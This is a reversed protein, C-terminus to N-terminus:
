FRLGTGLLLRKEASSTFTVSFGTAQDLIGFWLGGGGVTHWGGPSAGDVYVRGADVFGLVGIDLPIVYRVSAVPIRLESTGYFSADGAYRQADMGRVTSRGGIFALEHFPASGWVKRGGGRFALVPHMPVPLQFFTTASGSVQSFPHEVNWMAPFGSSNADLLFGRTTFGENDRTDYRLGLRVGAQGFEGIGYPREQAIFREAPGGTSSYQVVPGFTVDSERRGLAVAVAPQLLWQRQDVHYFDDPEGDTDNGLGHFNIVEFESMRAMATYHVRSRELRRDAMLTVRFGDIGISYEGALSVFTAYPERAFGYRKWSLGLKPVIGLGSGGGLGATPGLETDYDPSPPRLSGTDNVWPRRNLLTDQLSDPGYSVGRVRGDDYMRTLHLRTSDMLTNLGNGGIVRMVLKSRVNGSVLASDDGDHLYIRIEHTERPSFRRRFYQTGRSRLDVDVFGGDLYTITAIDAGNTGHVDVVRALEMYFRDAVARLTDRRQRLKTTFPSVLSGYERPTRNVASDIVANTIRLQLARAVSDWAPKEIGALLRRDLTRANRSLSVIGPYKADFTTLNPAARSALRALVGDYSHFAHDRDRAIPVWRVAESHGFRAWKWNGLHRDVDGIIFDTLRAVLFARDDVRQTPLSDLLPVLEESDIIESAGAFGLADDPKTPYQEILALREIFPERYKGLLSDDPMVAFEPTAHLVGAAEAIPAAVVPAAPYMASIQDRFLADVLTGRLRDPPNAAKTVLRFVFESGDPAGLRLSKTQMGGGEKLPQLGGAYTRVNLTPVRLPTEWYHRYTNGLFFRKLSGADYRPGATLTVSDLSTVRPTASQAIAPQAM